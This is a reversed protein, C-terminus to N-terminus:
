ISMALGVRIEAVNASENGARMQYRDRSNVAAKVIASGVQQFAPRATALAPESSTKDQETSFRDLHCLLRLAVSVLSSVPLPFM